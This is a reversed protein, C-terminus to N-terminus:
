TSWAFLSNKELTIIFNYHLNKMITTLAHQINKEGNTINSTKEIHATDTGSLQPLSIKTVGSM